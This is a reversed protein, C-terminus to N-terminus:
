LQLVEYIFFTENHWRLKLDANGFAATGWLFVPRQYEQLWNQVAQPGDKLLTRKRATYASLREQRLVVWQGERESVYTSWNPNGLLLSDQPTNEKLWLM